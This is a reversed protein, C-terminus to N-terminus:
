RLTGTIRATYRGTVSMTVAVGDQVVATTTDVLDGIHVGVSAIEFRAGDKICQLFVQTATFGATVEAPNCTLVVIEPDCDARVYMGDGVAATPDDDTTPDEGTTPDNGATLDGPDDTTASSSSSADPATATATGTDEQACGVLSAALSLALAELARRM